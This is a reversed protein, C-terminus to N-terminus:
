DGWINLMVRARRTPRTTLERQGKDGKYENAAIITRQPHQDWTYASEIMDISNVSEQSNKADVM